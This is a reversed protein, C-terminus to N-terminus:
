SYAFFCFTSANKPFAARSHSRSTPHCFSYKVIVKTSSKDGQLIIINCNAFSFNHRYNIFTNTDDTEIQATTDKCYM